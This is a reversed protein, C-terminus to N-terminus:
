LSGCPSAAGHACASRGPLEGRLENLASAGASHRLQLELMAGVRLGAALLASSLCADFLGGSNRRAGDVLKAWDNSTGTDLIVAADPSSSTERECLQLDSQVM